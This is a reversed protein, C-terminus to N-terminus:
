APAGPTDLVLTLPGENIIEVEMSAGFRGTGVQLGRARLGRAVAEYLPEAQVPGAAGSFSPRNGKRCDGYLTFQSVLLVGGGVDEVSRDMRGAEDQFVRLQALKRAMWEADAPGDGPAVGLLVALGRGIGGVVEGGVRVQARSVRQVVARM